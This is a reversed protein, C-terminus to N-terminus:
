SLSVYEWASFQLSYLALKGEEIFVVNQLYLMIDTIELRGLVHGRRSVIGVSGSAAM